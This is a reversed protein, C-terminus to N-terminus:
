AFDRRLFRAKVPKKLPERMYNKSEDRVQGTVCARTGLRVDPPVPNLLLQREVKSLKAGFLEDPKNLLERLAGGAKLVEFNRELDTM